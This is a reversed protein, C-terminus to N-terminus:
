LLLYGPFLLLISFAALPLSFKKKFIGYKNLKGGLYGTDRYKKVWIDRIVIVM